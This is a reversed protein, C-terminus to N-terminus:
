LQGSLHETIRRAIREAGEDAFHCEDAFLPLPEQGLADHLPITPVGAEALRVAMLRYTERIRQDFGAVHTRKIQLIHKENVTLPKETTALTPQLAVFVPTPASLRVIAQINVVYTAATSDPAIAASRATSPQAERWTAALMSLLCSNSLLFTRVDLSTPLPTWSAEYRARLLAAHQPWGSDTNMFDANVDNYGNLLLILDPSLAAIKRQFYIFEQASVYGIQAANLVEIDRGPHRARLMRELQAPVTKNDATSGLGWAASGGLIAIRFRKLLKERPVEEGRLGLANTRFFRGRLNPRMVWHEYPAWELTDPTVESFIEDPREIGSYLDLIPRHLLVGGNEPTTLLRSGVELVALFALSVVLSLLLKRM